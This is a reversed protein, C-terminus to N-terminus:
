CGSVTSPCSTWISLPYVPTREECWIGYTRFDLVYFELLFDVLVEWIAVLWTFILELWLYDSFHLDLSCHSVIECQDFAVINGLVMSFVSFYSIKYMALPILFQDLWKSFCNPLIQYLYFCINSWSMFIESRFLCGKFFVWIPIGFCMYLTGRM